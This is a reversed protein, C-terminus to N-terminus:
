EIITYESKELRVTRNPWTKRLERELQTWNRVEQLDAPIDRGYWDELFVKCLSIASKGNGHRPKLWLARCVKILALNVHSERSGRTERVRFQEGLLEESVEQSIPDRRDEWKPNATIEILM